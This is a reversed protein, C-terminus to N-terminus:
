QNGGQVASVESLKKELEGIQKNVGVASVILIIIAIWFLAREVMSM